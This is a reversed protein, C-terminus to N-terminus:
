NAYTIAGDWPHCAVSLSLAVNEVTIGCLAIDSEHSVHADGKM